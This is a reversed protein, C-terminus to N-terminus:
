EADPVGEGTLALTLGPNGDLTNTTAVASWRCRVFSDVDGLTFRRVGPTPWAYPSMPPQGGHFTFHEAERWPGTATPATEVFVDVQPLTGLDAGVALALRLQAHGAVDVASSAGTPDQPGASLIEIASM